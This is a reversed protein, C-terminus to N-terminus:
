RAPAPRLSNWRGCRPCRDEWTPTTEGCDRCRYPWTFARALRLAKRYEEFAERAQGRREFIAGLFAHVVPM